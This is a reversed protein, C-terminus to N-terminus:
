ALAICYMESEPGKEYSFCPLDGLAKQSIGTLASMGQEQMKIAHLLEKM